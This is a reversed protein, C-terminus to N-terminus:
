SSCPKGTRERIRINRGAPRRPDHRRARQVARGHSVDPEVALARALARAPAPGGLLKSLIAIAMPRSVAPGARGRGTGPAPGTAILASWASASTRCYREGHLLSWGSIRSRGCLAGPELARCQGLGREAEVPGHDSAPTHSAWGPIVSSPWAAGKAIDLDLGRLVETPDKAFM